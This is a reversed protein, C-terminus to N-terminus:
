GLMLTLSLNDPGTATLQTTDPTSTKREFFTDRRPNKKEYSFHADGTMKPM